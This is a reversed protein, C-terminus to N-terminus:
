SVHNHEKQLRKRKKTAATAAVRKAIIEASQKKGRLAASIKERTEPSYMKGKNWSVKGKRAVSLKTCHEPSFKKGFNPNKDGLMAARKKACHEPSHKKGKQSASMRACQEPTRKMGTVKAVRKAITEESPNHTGEGGAASNTLNAGQERFFEIWAVEWQQWHEEPVQDLIEVRPEWGQSLGSRIWNDRHCSGGNRADFLHRRLRGQLNVSKGVYRVEDTLPCKLAYIFIPRM